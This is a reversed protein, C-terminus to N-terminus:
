IVRSGQFYIYRLSPGVIFYQIHRYPSELGTPYFPLGSGIKVEKKARLDGAQTAPVQNYFLHATCHVRMAQM